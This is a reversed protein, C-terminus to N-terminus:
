GYVCTTYTDQWQFMGAEWVPAESMAIVRLCNRPLTAALVANVMPIRASWLRAAPTSPGPPKWGFPQNVTSAPPATVMQAALTSIPWPMSVASAMSTASSSHQRQSCTCTM